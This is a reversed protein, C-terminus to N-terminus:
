IFIDNSTWLRANERPIVLLLILKKGLHIEELMFDEFNLCDDDLPFPILRIFPSHNEVVKNSSLATLYCILSWKVLFDLDNGM